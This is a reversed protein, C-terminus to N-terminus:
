GTRAESNCVLSIPATFVAELGSETYRLDAQRSGCIGMAILRTGFGKRDPATAPPGGRETWSLRLVDEVIKWSIRVTGDGVSLAGHKVANTMLEHLLLSLSLVADPKVLLDEGDVEVREGEQELRLVQEVLITLPSSEWEAQLLVDHAHGLASLRAQLKGLLAPDIGRLTQLATAQVLAFSNKVRHSLEQMLLQKQEEAQKRRTIDVATGSFRRRKGGGDEIIQGKCEVWRLLQGPIALRYEVLFDAGREFVARISARLGPLDEAVVFEQYESETLGAATKAPDLGYLRAFIADGYILDTDVMWDWLGVLGSGALAVHLREEHSAAETESIKRATIDRSVVCFRAEQGPISAVTVDWWKPRGKATPCQATFTSVGAIKAGALAEETVDRLDDPWLEPWYCGRVASLDEIEMLRLGDDNFSTIRGDGDLLKVCDPSSLSVAPELRSEGDEAEVM